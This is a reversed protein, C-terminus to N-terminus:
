GSYCSYSVGVVLGNSTRFQVSDGDSSYSRSLAADDKALGGLVSRAVSVPQRIKFPLLHNWKASTIDAHTVMLSAPDNSIDIVGLELGDFYLTKRTVTYGDWREVESVAERILRAMSRVKRADKPLKMGFPGGVCRIAEVYVHEQGFACISVSSVLLTAIVFKM